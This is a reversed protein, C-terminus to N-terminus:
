QLEYKKNLERILKKGTEVGTEIKKFMIPDPEIRHIILSKEFNPNFLTLDWWERGSYKMSFQCQWIYKKDIAKLGYIIAKMHNADNLAKTEFGGVKGILGDPSFGVYKDVEIFGVETVDNGTELEYMGRAISELEHGREMDANTYHETNSSYKGVLLGIVLSELGKGNSAIAQANSATLRMERLKHWEPSGQEVNHIKM